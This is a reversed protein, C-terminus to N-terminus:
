RSIYIKIKWKYELKKRKDYIEFVKKGELILRKIMPIYDDLICNTSKELPQTQLLYVYVTQRSIKLKKAIETKPMGERNLKQVEQIVKWKEEATRKKDRQRKNLIREEEKVPNGKRDIIKITESVTRKKKKKLDDTLNKFIHFRDVIQKAKPLAENIANKYTQSFDRTVTKVKKFKKLTEVVDDKERSNIVEIKKKKDNDVFLTNFRERKKIFFWRNRHKWCQLKNKNRNKKIIRLITNNSIQVHSNTIQKRAEISSNKLGIDNIYEDLRKTRLANKEVFDLPEAFTIHNCKQNSCFYKKVKIILKVKYKLIPLDSIKRMYISHVNKSEQGCYKCKTPQKKTECYIYMVNNKIEKSIVILKNDLEKILEDLELIKDETDKVFSIKDYKIKVTM